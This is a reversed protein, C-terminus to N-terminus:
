VASAIGVLVVSSVLIALGGILVWVTRRSVGKWEGAVLGVINSFVIVLTFLLSWTIFSMSAPIKTTGMGKFVFQAFWIVGAMAAFTYNKALPLQRAAFDKLSKNKIGLYICYGINFTFGGILLVAYVPNYQWITGPNLSATIATMASGAYEGFAFCASMVGAVLAVLLGKRLDFDRTANDKGAKQEKDKLTAAWGCVAIGLLSVAVSTLVLAGSTGSFISSAKAAFAAGFGDPRQAPDIMVPVFPGILTSLASTLGLPLANGLGIGLYRISLGWTLGGIGWGFGFLIPWWINSAPAQGIITFLNPITILALIWPGILLAFFGYIIWGSEWSWNKVYKLPLYFSGSAMGGLMILTIGFVISM